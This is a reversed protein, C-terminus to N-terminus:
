LLRTKRSELDLLMAKTRLGGRGSYGGPGAKGVVRHCPVVVPIPNRGCATGVSRASGGATRALEGYTRTEGYPIAAMAAWVRRQFDTGAPALPLDFDELTGAFYAGLQRAAESLLANEGGGVGSREGDPAWDIASIAGDEERVCLTGVPSPVLIAPM